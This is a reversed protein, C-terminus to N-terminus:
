FKFKQKSIILNSHKNNVVYTKAISTYFPGAMKRRPDGRIKRKTLLHKQHFNFSDLLSKLNSQQWPYTKQLSM